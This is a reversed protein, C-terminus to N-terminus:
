ELIYYINTVWSATDKEKPPGIIYEEIAVSPKLKKAALYQNIAMHIHTSQDYSGKQVVMVAKAPMINAFSAGKFPTASDSVPFAAMIDTRKNLTDWKYMISVPMGTIKPGIERGIMMYSEGFFKDLNAFEVTKRIGQFLHGPYDLEKIEVDSAIVPAVPTANTEVFTKMNKLGSEFDGGMYKDINVFMNMANLPYPTHKVFTWTVKQMDDTTDKVVLAIKAEMHWPEVITMECNLTNESVAVNKMEGEGTLEPNGVWRYSSGPEGDTGTYTIKVTSDKQIWPSWNPWNKFHVIQEWVAEKPAKILITRTVIADTPEIAGMVLIAGIIIVLM